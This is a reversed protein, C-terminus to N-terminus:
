LAERVDKHNQQPGQEVSTEDDGSFVALRINQPTSIILLPHQRSGIALAIAQQLDKPTIVRANVGSSHADFDSLVQKVGGELSLERLQGVGEVDDSHYFVENAKGPKVEVTKTLSRSKYAKYAKISSFKKGAAIVEVPDNAVAQADAATNDFAALFFFIFACLIMKM